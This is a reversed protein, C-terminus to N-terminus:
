RLTVDTPCAIPRFFFSADVMPYLTTASAAYWCSSSPSFPSFPPCPSSSSGFLLLVLFFFLLLLFFFSALFLSCSALFLLLLLPFLCFLVFIRYCSPSSSQFDKFQNTSKQVKGSNNSWSPAISCAAGNWTRGSPGGLGLRALAWGLGAQALNQFDQFRSIWFNTIGFM